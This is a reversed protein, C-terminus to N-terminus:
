ETLYLVIDVIGLAWRSIEQHDLMIFDYFVSSIEKYRKQLYIIETSMVVFLYILTEGLGSHSRSAQGNLGMLLFKVGTM